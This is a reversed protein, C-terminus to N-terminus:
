DIKALRYIHDDYLQGCISYNQPVVEALQFGCKRLVSESAVNGETVVAEFEHIGLEISSWELLAMLSESGYGFGFFKPLFLYGIEAVGDKYCFGTIGVPEGTAIEFVVLTLWDRSQTTWPQCRREFRAEIEDTPMPDFCKAIVIPNVHLEHFFDWDQVEVQRMALRSSSFQNM